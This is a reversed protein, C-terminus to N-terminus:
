PPSKKARQEDLWDAWWQMLERRQPLYEARNYASRVEDSEKHALQREIVDRKFPSLENLATSALARFGHGTMRGRYGLRYLAFLLTNESIPHNRAKFSEFVLPCGERALERLDDLVKLAQHSLPVVHPLRLKMREGPVVWVKGEEKLESWHMQRLETTRVFTLALLQLALRTQVEPYGDIDALLQPVEDLPVCAMHRKVQRAQLVRTLNSAAHSDILGSDVAFDMIARIRGAVRHATETIGMADVSQVVAVFQKRTIADVPLKGLAPLAYQEVTAQVQARHKANSLTPLHVRLWAQCVEEFLAARPKPQAEDDSFVACAARADALSMGPWRGFTKTAQKGGRRYNKRWSKLGSPAVYLYLGQRDALKYPKQAPKAQEIMRATLTM